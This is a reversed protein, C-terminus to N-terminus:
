SAFYAAGVLAAGVLGAGLILASVHLVLRRM